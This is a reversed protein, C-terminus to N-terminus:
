RIYKMRIQYKFETKHAKFILIFINFHFHKLSYLTDNCELIGLVIEIDDENNITMIITLLWVM